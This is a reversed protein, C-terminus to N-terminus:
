RTQLVPLYPEPVAECAAPAVGKRRRVGAAIAALYGQWYANLSFDDFDLKAALDLTLSTRLHREARELKHRIDPDASSMRPMEPPAPLSEAIVSRVLKEEDQYHHFSGCCHVYRGLKVGLRAAMAEHLMTLLVLDYPMVMLVSQSRMNAICTLAGDRIFFQMHTLCSCDRTEAFLDAPLYAEIVARRSSPDGQLRRAAQEFQDGDGSRFIRAGPAAFLSVGDDSFRVANPNYFRIAELSDSSSMIWLVNGLAYGLDIPRHASLTLRRRPHAIVFSTATLERFGRAGQGFGSGVSSTQTVGPVDKGHHLLDSLSGLWAEQASQYVPQRQLEPRPPKNMM